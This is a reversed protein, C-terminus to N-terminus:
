NIIMFKIKKYSKIRYYLSVKWKKLHSKYHHNECLVVINLPDTLKNKDYKYHHLNLNESTGCVFCKYANKDNRYIQRFTKWEDSQLYKKYKINM